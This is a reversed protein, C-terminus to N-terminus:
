SHPEPLDEEASHWDPAEGPLECGACLLAGYAVYLLSVVFGIEFLLDFFDSM